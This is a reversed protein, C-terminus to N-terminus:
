HDGLMSFSGISSILPFIVAFYFSFATKELLKIAINIYPCDTESYLLEMTCFYKLSRYIHILLVLVSIAKNFILGVVVGAGVSLIELPNNINKRLM